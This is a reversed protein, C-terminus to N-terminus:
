IHGPVSVPAHRMHLSLGLAAMHNANRGLITKALPLFSEEEFQAHARYRAVLRQLAADDLSTGPAFQGKALKKLGPELQQWLAELERHEGTLRQVQAQVQQREAGDAASDLVAPFLEREEDAHHEFIAESFFGLAQSAIERARLAPGLLAPLEALTDLKGLIGQHCHSFGQIPADAAPAAPSTSM